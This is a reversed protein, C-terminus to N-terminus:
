RVAQTIPGFDFHATQDTYIEAALAVMTAVTTADAAAITYTADAVEHYTTSALHTNHKAKYANARAFAASVSAPWAPASSGVTNVVDAGGSGTHASTLALHANIKSRLETILTKIGDWDNEDNAPDIAALSNTSDASGHSAHVRHDEYVARALNAFQSLKAKTDIASPLTGLSNFVDASTHWVGGGNVMHASLDQLIELLIPGWATVMDQELTAGAPGVTGGIVTDVAKHAYIKLGSGANSRLAHEGDFLAIAKEVVDVSGGLNTPTGYFSSLVQRVASTNVEAKDYHPKTGGAFELAVVSRHTENHASIYLASTGVPLQYAM